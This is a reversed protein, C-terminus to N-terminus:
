PFLVLVLVPAVLAGAVVSAVITRSAARRPGAVRKTPQSTRHQPRVPHTEVTMIPRRRSRRSGPDPPAPIPGLEAHRKKPPSQEPAPAVHGGSPGEHTM